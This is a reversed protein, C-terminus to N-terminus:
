GCRSCRRTPISSLRISGDAAKPIRLFDNKDAGTYKELERYSKMVSNMDGWGKTQILGVNEDDLQMGDYWNENEAM